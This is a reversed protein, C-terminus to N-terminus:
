LLENTGHERWQLFQWLVIRLRRVFDLWTCKQNCTWYVSHTFTYLICCKALNGYWWEVSRNFQLLKEFSVLAISHIHNIPLIRTLSKVECSHFHTAFLNISRSQQANPSPLAWATSYSCQTHPINSTKDTSWFVSLARSICQESGLREVDQLKKCHFLRKRHIKWRFRM